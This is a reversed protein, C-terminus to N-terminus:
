LPVVRAKKPKCKEIVVLGKQKLKGLAGLYRDDIKELEKMTAPGHRLLLLLKGEIESLKELVKDQDEAEGSM